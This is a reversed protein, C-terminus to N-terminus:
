PYFLTMVEHAVRIGSDIAGQIWGRDQSTHEGAFLINRETSAIYPTLEIEQGPKFMAFAGGSWPYQGWSHTKGTVFLDYIHSGHITALNDLAESIRQEETLSDWPMTDDEWTYSALVVGSPDGFGDSPYYAFRIPLDTVTKGGFMGDSEWFRQSFQLGIKTSSVYHLQNIAKRKGYSFAHHPHVEVFQMSTFPLTIIAIDSTVQLSQQAPSRSSTRLTVKENEQIITSLQQRFLINNALEPLFANPLQDNGGTIEYFATTPSILSLERFIELFSLEPFGETALLVRISDVAGVSLPPSMSNYRLFFDMSYPDFAHIAAPLNKELDQQIFEQLPRISQAVLQDATKGKEHPAVPFQLIDPQQDYLYRRSKVGNIYLIDNPSHNIFRNLPLKFKRIYAMTLHHYDPIRMAGADLYHGDTFPQRLTFVRGGVRESAELITVDHGAKKLLSGAVLGSMGAGVITIKKPIRVPPFGNQIIALKQELSLSLSRPPTTRATM